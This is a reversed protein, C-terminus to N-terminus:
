SDVLDVLPVHWRVCVSESWQYVNNSMATGFKMECLRYVTRAQIIVHQKIHDEINPSNTGQNLLVRLSYCCLCCITHSIELRNWPDVVIQIIVSKILHWLYLIGSPHSQTGTRSTLTDDGSWGWLAPVLLLYIVRSYGMCHIEKLLVIILLLGHKTETILIRITLRHYNEREFDHWPNLDNKNFLNRIRLGIM